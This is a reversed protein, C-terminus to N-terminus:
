HEFSTKVLRTDMECSQLKSTPEVELFIFKTLYFTKVVDVMMKQFFLLPWFMNQPFVNQSEALDSVPKHFCNKKITSM